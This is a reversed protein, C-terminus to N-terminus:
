SFISNIKASFKKDSMVSDYVSNLRNKQQRRAFWRIIAYTKRQYVANIKLQPDVIMKAEFLLRDPADMRNLLYLETEQIDHLPKRM